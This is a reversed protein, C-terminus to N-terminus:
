VMLEGILLRNGYQKIKPFNYLNLSFKRINSGIENMEAISRSLRRNQM